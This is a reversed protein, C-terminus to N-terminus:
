SRLRVSRAELRRQRFTEEQLGSGRSRLQSEIDLVSERLGVIARDSAGAAVRRSVAVYQVLEPAM